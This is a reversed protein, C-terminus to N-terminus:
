EKLIHRTLNTQQAKDPNKDKIAQVIAHYEQITTNLRNPSRIPKIRTQYPQVFLDLYWEKSKKNDAIDFIYNHFESNYESFEIENKDRKLRDMKVLINKIKTIDESTAIKKALLSAFCELALRVELVDILDDLSIELVFIGMKPVTTLYKKAVLIKVAERIPIHSINLEKTISKEMIHTCPKFQEKIIASKIIKYVKHSLPEHQDIKLEKKIEDM